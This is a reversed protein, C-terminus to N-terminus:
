VPIIIIFNSGQGEKSEVKLEGGHAKVIDYSLSLGLGTGQGTPKTTFFPQFIKDKIADPIGPGNDKISIQIKDGLNKTSVTVMPQLSLAHRTGVAQFANNIVNLLVRGIEQPVVSVLPLNHDFDTKFDANFTKDKARLGHYSLRLYEDALANIDTPVKEGTSTRSHELMGKVIADARKGHHNIKELNQKIDELIEDEVEDEETKPRSEQSKARTEKIEEVLEASVESFNNVFNLPNQIEHAIGATLQGLSAMKESQILQAQTLKLEKLTLEIQNKQNELIINAKQKQKNNRYLFFLIIFLATIGALLGYLRLKNRYSLQAAELENQRAQERSIQNQITMFHTAGFLSDKASAALKFYELALAPQISDYLESLLTGSLVIGKKFSVQQAYEFGRLAHFQASDLNGLKTHISSIAASFQSLGRYDSFKHSIGYGLRYYALAEHYNKKDNEIDGAIEYVGSMENQLLDKRQFAIELHWNASDLNKNRFYGGALAMHDIAASQAYNNLEDIELARLCYEISKPYNGMEDYIASLRRYARATERPLNNSEAIKLSQFIADLAEAFKGQQRLLSTLSALIRAEGWAFNNKRALALATHSYKLSSDNNIREYNFGLGDMIMIRSSDDDTTALKQKLSDIARLEGSITGQALVTFNLTFFYLLILISSRYDVLNVTKRLIFFSESRLSKGVIYEGRIFNELQFMSRLAKM